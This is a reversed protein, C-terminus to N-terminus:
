HPTAKVDSAENPVTLAHALGVEVIIVGCFLVDILFNEVLWM